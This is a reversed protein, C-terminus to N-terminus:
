GAASDIGMEFIKQMLRFEEQKIAIVAIIIIHFLVRRRRREPLIILRRWVYPAGNFCNVM